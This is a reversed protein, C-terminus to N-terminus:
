SLKPPPLDLPDDPAVRLFRVLEQLEAMQRQHLELLEARQQAAVVIEALRRLQPMVGAFYYPSREATLNRIVEEVTQAAITTM